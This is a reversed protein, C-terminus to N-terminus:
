RDSAEVPPSTDPVTADTTSAAASGADTGIASARRLRAFLLELDFAESGDATEHQPDGYLTREDYRTDVEHCPQGYLEREDRAREPGDEVDTRPSDAAATGDDIPDYM